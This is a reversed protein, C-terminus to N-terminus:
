SKCAEEHYGYKALVPKIMDMMNRIRKTPSKEGLAKYLKKLMIWEVDSCYGSDVLEIAQRVKDESTLDPTAKQSTDSSPMQLSIVIKTGSM